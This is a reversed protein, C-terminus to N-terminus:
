KRRAYIWSGGWRNLRRQSRKIGDPFPWPAVTLGAKAFARAARYMHYDSTLLVKGRNEGALLRAVNLANERTNSSRMEVEIATVPVGQCALFERM